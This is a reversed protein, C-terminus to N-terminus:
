APPKPPESPRPPPQGLKHDGFLNKVGAILAVGTLILIEDLSNSFGENGGYHWIDVCAIVVAVIGAVPERWWHQFHEM